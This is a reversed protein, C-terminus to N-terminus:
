DRERHVEGFIKCGHKGDIHIVVCLTYDAYWDDGILFRESDGGIYIKTESSQAEIFERVENVDISQM